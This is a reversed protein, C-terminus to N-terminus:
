FVTLKFLKCYYIVAEKKKQFSATKILLFTFLFLVSSVLRNAVAITRLLSINIEISLNYITNSNIM